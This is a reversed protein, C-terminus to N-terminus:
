RCFFMVKKKRFIKFPDKRFERVSKPEYIYLLGLLDFIIIRHYPMNQEIWGERPFWILFAYYNRYKPNVILFNFNILKLVFKSKKTKLKLKVDLWCNYM